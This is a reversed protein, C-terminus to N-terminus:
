VPSEKETIHCMVHACTMQVNDEEKSHGSVPDWVILVFALTKAEVVATFLLSSNKQDLLRKSEVLMLALKKVELKFLIESKKYHRLFM